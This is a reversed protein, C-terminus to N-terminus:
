AKGYGYAYKGYHHKRSSATSKGKTMNLVSCVSTVNAEELVDVVDNLATAHVIDQRIVLLVSDAYEAIIEADRVIGIPPTDILVYDVMSSEKVVKLTKQFHKNELLKDAEAVASRQWMYLLNKIEQTSDLVEEFKCKGLLFDAFQPREGLEKDFIRIMAPRRLDGDILLVKKGRACLGLALNAAVTSKGDNECVSSVMLVKHEQAELHNQVKTVLKDMEEAYAINISPQSILLAKQEKKKKVYHLEGLVQMDLIREAQETCHVKDTFLAIEVTLAIGAALVLLFVAAAYLVAKKEAQETTTGSISNISKLLYGSEFYSSLKPYNEEAAKLLYFASEASSSTATMRILSTGPIQAATLTGNTRGAQDSKKMQEKLADSNLVNVSRTVASSINTGGLKAYANDRPVVTLCVTATYTDRLLHNLLVYAGTGAISACLLILMLNRCIQRIIYSSDIIRTEREQRIHENM